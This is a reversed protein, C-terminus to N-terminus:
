VCARLILQVHGVRRACRSVHLRVRVPESKRALKAAREEAAAKRKAGLRERESAYRVEAARQEAERQAAVELVRARKAAREAERVEPQTCAKAFASPKLQLRVRGHM